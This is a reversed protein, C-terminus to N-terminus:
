HAPNGDQEFLDVVRCRECMQIRQLATEDKFMWHGSLKETMRRMVAQTAFPKGCRICCFPEEEHLVRQQRYVDPEYAIRPQLRIADEPCAAHCLGCQVCNGEVFRLQPRDDGDYLASAPCVSVCAMCLTCAQENVEIAGFPAGDPLEAVPQPAPAHAYLHDLAMRLAARKQGLGAFGAPEVAVPEISQALSRAADEGEGEVSILHLLSRPYGMGELVSGAYCIQLSLERLVSCPVAPTALLVVRRAGYAIASLWVEMGVSGLEEVEFPLVSEPMREAVSALAQAGAGADTFLVQPQEGGQERYHRLTTRLADIVDAAPPFAYRIAGSPCATACSGGGQCLFPDVEIREKLSHIAETPCADICRRCGELGSRGHACIDPDYQFYRPKEFGGVLEPLEALAEDLSEQSRPAFYGLPPMDSGIAPHVGLDLVLDFHEPAGPCLHAPNFARGDVVVTASFAGLHGQLRDLRGHVVTVEGGDGADVETRDPTLVVCRLDGALRRACELARGTGGVVLLNGRSQYDVRQFEEPELTPCRALAFARARGDASRQPLADFTVTTNAGPQASQDGM